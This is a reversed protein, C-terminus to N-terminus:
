RGGGWSLTGKLFDPFLLDFARYSRDAEGCYFILYRTAWFYNVGSVLYDYKKTAVVDKEKVMYLLLFEGVFTTIGLLALGNGVNLVTNRLSFKGASGEVTIVFRM